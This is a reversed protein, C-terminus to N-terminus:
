YTKGYKTKIDNLRSDVCINKCVTKIGNNTLVCSGNIIFQGKDIDWKLSSCRLNRGDATTITVNGRLLLGSQRYSAYAKKSSLEFFLKDDEFVKYSFNDALIETTNSIDFNIRWGDKPQRLGNFAGILAILDKHKTKQIQPLEGAISTLGPLDGGATKFNCAASVEQSSDPCLSYRYFITELDTIRIVKYLGTKFVGLRNNEVSLNAARISCVARGNENTYWRTYSLHGTQNKPLATDPGEFAPNGPPFSENLKSSSAAIVMLLPIFAAWLGLLIAAKRWRGWRLALYQAAGM